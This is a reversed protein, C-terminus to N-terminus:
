YSAMRIRNAGAWGLTDSGSIAIRPQTACRRKRDSQDAAPNGLWATGPRTSVQPDITGGSGPTPQEKEKENRERFRRSYNLRNERHDLSLIRFHKSFFGGVCHRRGSSHTLVPAIQVVSRIQRTSTGQSFHVRSERLLFIWGYLSPLISRLEIILRHAREVALLLLKELLEIAPLSRGAAAGRPPTRM